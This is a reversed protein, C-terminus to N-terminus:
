IPTIVVLGEAPSLGQFSAGCPGSNGWTNRVSMKPTGLIPDTITIFRVAGNPLKGKLVVWGGEIYPILLYTIGVQGSAYLCTIKLPKGNIHAVGYPFTEQADIKVHTAGQRLDAHVVYVGDPIRVRSAGANWPAVAIALVASAVIVGVSVNRRKGSRDM